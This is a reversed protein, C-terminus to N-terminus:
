METETATHQQPAGFGWTGAAKCIADLQSIASRSGALDVNFQFRGFEVILTKGTMLSNHFDAVTAADAYGSQLVFVGDSEDTVGLSGNWPSGDVWLKFPIDHQGQSDVYAQVRQGFRANLTFALYFDRFCGMFGHNDAWTIAYNVGRSNVDAKWNAANAVSPHLSFAAAAALLVKRM